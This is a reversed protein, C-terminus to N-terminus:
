RKVKKVTAGLMVEGGVSMVTTSGSLTLKVQTASPNGLGKIVQNKCCSLMVLSIDSLRSKLMVTVSPLPSRRTVLVSITALTLGDSAPIYM